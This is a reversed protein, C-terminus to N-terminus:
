FAPFLQKNTEQLLQCLRRQTLLQQEVKHNLTLVHSSVVLCETITEDKLVVNKLPSGFCSAIISYFM